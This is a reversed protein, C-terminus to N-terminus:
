SKTKWLKWWGATGLGLSNWWQDLAPRERALVAERTVGGPPPVLAALRDYVRAREAETGRSLLHWLTMADQRRASFLILDLAAARGPDDPAGFDLLDLADGYGAPADEYYPTGPGADPRTAAVAGEPIFSERGHGEFSVWGLTVHILGGGGEDVHLTYECGLDIATASPTNVFFQRPPAWIRAHILGKALAMRHEGGRAKVVQLRTNPEVDVRGIEGVEIRARSVADTELWEGVRLRSPATTPGVPGQVGDVSPSGAITQVSWGTGLTLFAYRGIAAILLLAAASSLAGILWVTRRSRISRRQPLEPASGQHRLPGLVTELRVIEPDPPGSGDWLYDHEEANTKTM